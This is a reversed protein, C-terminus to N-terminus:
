ARKVYRTAQLTCAVNPYLTNENQRWPDTQRNKIKVIVSVVWRVVKRDLTFPDADFYNKAM